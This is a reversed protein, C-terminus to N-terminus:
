ILNILASLVWIVLVPIFRIMLLYLIIAGSIVSFEYLKTRFKTQNWQPYTDM